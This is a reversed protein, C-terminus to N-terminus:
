NSRLASRRAVAAAFRESLTERGRSAPPASRRVRFEEGASELREMAQAAHALLRVRTGAALGPARVVAATVITADEELVEYVAESGLSTHRLFCTDQRELLTSAMAAIIAV